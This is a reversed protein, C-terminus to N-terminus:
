LTVNFMKLYHMSIMNKDNIGLYKFSFIYNTRRCDYIHPIRNTQQTTFQRYMMYVRKIGRPSVISSKIWFVPMTSHKNLVLYLIFM